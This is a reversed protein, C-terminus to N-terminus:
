RLIDIKTTKGKVIAAKQGETVVSGFDGGTNMKMCGSTVTTPVIILVSLSSLWSPILGKVRGQMSMNEMISQQTVDDINNM